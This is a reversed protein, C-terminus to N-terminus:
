HMVSGARARVNDFPPIVGPPMALAPFAMGCLGDFPSETWVDGASPWRDASADERPEAGRLARVPSSPSKASSRRRSRRALPARATLRHSGCVRVGGSVNLGGINATDFSTFGLVTGSGYPLFVFKNSPQYSSSSNHNYRHHDLCGPSVKSNNCDVSPM